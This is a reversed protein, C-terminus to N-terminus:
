TTTEVFQQGSKVMIRIYRRDIEQVSIIEYRISGKLVRWQIDVARRRTTIVSIQVGVLQEAQMFENGPNDTWSCWWQPSYEVDEWGIEQNANSSDLETVKKQFTVLTDMRGIRETSKLLM